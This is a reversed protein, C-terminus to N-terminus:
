SWESPLRPDRDRSAPGQAPRTWPREPAESQAPHADTRTAAPPLTAVGAVADLEILFLAIVILHIITCWLCIAGVEFLEVYILYLIFGIAGTAWFLPLLAPWGALRGTGIAILLLMTTFWLVGLAAVPVPGITSAASSTVRACDILGSTACLLPVQGATLHVVTLYSSVALGGGALALSARRPANM